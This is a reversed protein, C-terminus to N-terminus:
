CSANEITLRSHLPRWAERPRPPTCPVTSGCALPPTSSPTAAASLPSPPPSTTTRTASGAIIAATAPTALPISALDPSFAAAFPGRTAFPLPTANLRHHPCLNSLGLGGDRTALKTCLLALDVRDHDHRSHTPDVSDLARTIDAIAAEVTADSYAAAAETQEPPM